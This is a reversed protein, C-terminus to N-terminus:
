PAGESWLVGEAHLRAIDKAAYGHAGLVAENHQGALPPGGLAPHHRDFRVM